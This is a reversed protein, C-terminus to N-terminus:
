FYYWSCIAVFLLFYIFFLICYVSDFIIGVAYRWSGGGGGFFFLFFSLTKYYFSFLAYM